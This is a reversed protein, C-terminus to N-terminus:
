NGFELEIARRSLPTSRVSRVSSSELSTSPRADCLLSRKATSSSSLWPAPWGVLSTVRAMSPSRDSVNADADMVGIGSMRSGQFAEGATSTRMNPSHATLSVVPEFTSM